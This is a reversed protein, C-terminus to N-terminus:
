INMVVEQGAYIKLIDIREKHLCHNDVFNLVGLAYQVDLRLVVDLVIVLYGHSNM